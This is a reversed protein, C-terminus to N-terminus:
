LHPDLGSRGDNRAAEDRGHGEGVPPVSLVPRKRAQEGVSNKERATHKLLAEAAIRLAHLFDPCDAYPEPPLPGAMLRAILSGDGLRPHARGFVQLHRGAREAEVVLRLAARRQLPGPLAMVHRALATLEHPLPRIRM